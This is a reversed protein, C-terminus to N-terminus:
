KNWDIPLIVYCCFIGMYYVIACHWLIVKTSIFQVKNDVQFFMLFFAKILSNFSVQDSILKQIYPDDVLTRM